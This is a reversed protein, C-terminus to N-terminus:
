FEARSLLRAPEHLHDRWLYAALLPESGTRMAHPEMSVHAIIDGPFHQRWQGHGQRWEGDGSLVVYTEAAPHVHEPYTVGPGLLLLGLALDVHRWHGNPGLLECYAYRDLFDRDTYSSNQRWHLTGRLSSLQACVAVTPATALDLARLLHRVVPETKPLLTGPVLELDRVKSGSTDLLDALRNFFPHWSSERETLM